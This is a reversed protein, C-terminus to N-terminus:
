NQTSFFNIRNMKKEQDIDQIIKIKEISKQLYSVTNDDELSSFINNLEKELIDSEDNFFSFEDKDDEGEGYDIDDEGDDYDIDDEGEDNFNDVYNDEIIGQEDDIIINNRGLIVLVATDIENRSLIDTNKGNQKNFNLINKSINIIASLICNDFNNEVIKICNKNNSVLKMSIKLVKKVETINTNKMFKLLVLLMSSIRKWLIEIVQRSADKFGFNTQVIDKYIDPIKMKEDTILNNCNKYINEISSKVFDTPLGKINLNHKSYVYDKMIMVTECMDKTRSEIWKKIYIDGNIVKDINNIKLILKKDLKIKKSYFTRLEELYKGVFNGGKKIKDVGLFPESYNWLLKSNGTEVEGKKKKDGVGLVPESYNWLLKSNGTEVLLTKNERNQFKKDLAIKAFEKINSSFNINVLNNYKKVLIDIKLFDNCLRVIKNDDVLIHKYASKVYKINSINALLSTIMYHSVSPFKLGDINLLNENSCASNPIFSKYEIKTNESDINSFKIVDEEQKDEEQKDEEQLGKKFSSDINFNKIQKVEEKSPIKLKNIELDIKHTLKKPLKNNLYLQFIETKLTLLKSKSIKNNERSKLIEYKKINIDQCNKEIIYDQVFDLIIDLRKNELEFRLNVINEKRVYYVMQLPNNLTKIVIENMNKNNYLSIVFKKMPFEDLTKQKRKSIIEDINKGVMEELNNQENRIMRELIKYAIYHKYIKEELDKKTKIEDNQKYNKKIRHRIQMLIKGLINKGDGKTGSGIYPDNDIYLLKSEGTDILLKSLKNNKFKIENSKLLSDLIINKIEQDYLVYYDNKVNKARSNRLQIKNIPTVILNSYIFNSVTKWVKNDITMDFRSHNSLNGYNHDRPYIKITDTM